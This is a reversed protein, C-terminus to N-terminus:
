DTWAKLQSIDNQTFDAIFRGQEKDFKLREAPIVYEKDQLNMFGHPVEMVFAKVQGSDDGLFEEIEGLREGGSSYVDMGELEDIEVGEYSIKPNDDDLEILVAEKEQSTAATQQAWAPTTSLLAVALALAIMKVM